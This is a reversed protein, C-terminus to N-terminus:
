KSSNLILVLVYLNVGFIADLKAVRPLVLNIALNDSPKPIILSGSKIERALVIFVLSMAVTILSLIDLPDPCLSSISKTIVM